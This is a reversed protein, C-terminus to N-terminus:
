AVGTPRWGAAQQLRGLRRGRAAFASAEGATRVGRERLRPVMRAFIEASLLADGLATHRGEVPIGFRQAVAELNLDSMQPELAAALLATDLSPPDHWAIGAREAECALLTLDFAINHGIVVVGRILAEIEPWVEAFKPAGALMATTIGHVRAAARPVPRGPDVLRDLTLHRYIRVGHMRVAGAAVVRDQRPDLGTTELDLAAIPLEELRTTAAATAPPPRDHLSLDHVVAPEADAGDAPIFFIMGAHGALEYIRVPLEAGEVTRLRAAFPRGAAHPRHMAELLSDRDFAGYISTGVELRSAAPVRRTAANLLSVLGTDTVVVIAEGAAAVVAQLRLRAQETEAEREQLAAAAARAVRGVEGTLPQARRSLLRGSSVAALLDLRLRGLDDFHQDAIIFAASLGSLGLFLGVGLLIGAMAPPQALLDPQGIVAALAIAVLAAAAVALAAALAHRSGRRM